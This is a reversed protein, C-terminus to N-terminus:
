APPATTTTTTVPPASAAPASTTTTTTVTPAQLTKLWELFAHLASSGVSSVLGAGAYGIVPSTGVITLRALMDFRFLAALGFSVLVALTIKVSVLWAPDKVWKELGPKIIEILREAAGAIVYLIAFIAILTEITM